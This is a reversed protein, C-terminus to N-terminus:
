KLFKLSGEKQFTPGNHVSLFECLLGNFGYIGRLGHRLLVAVLVDRRCVQEIREYVLVAPEDARQERLHAGVAVRHQALQVGLYPLQGADGAAAALGVGRGLRALEDAKGLLSRLLEPVLVDGDLVQHQAHEGLAARRHPLYEGVVADVALAEVGGQCLDLAAGDRAVVGLAAVVGEGFVAGVEHLPRALLLEVGDYATVGLYPVDDPYERPLRLVVGHEYALRAHAFGGYGLAQRLAYHAAVHGLAQAVLGDEREVHAREYGARLVAALELLPELGHQLLYAAGLAPYDQEDVLQVRYDARALGLAAHVGAVEQLGHERAALQVAYARGREVLVALVDFLVRRELAPELGDHDGLGRHLVRYGYEAAQLLAILDEVADADVVVREHRRRRQRVPINCVAEQGVLGYVEHVLGAGHYARLYVGQRALEVVLAALDHLQLDLLHGEPLLVVLEGLVPQRLEGGLQRLELVLEVGHFGAPLGLAAAHVLHLLQLGVYLAHVALDLGRLHGELILLGRPELVGVQGRQFLLQGLGLLPGLLAGALVRQHVVRDGLLLDCADHGLPRAYGDRLQDLALALLQQVQVLDDM